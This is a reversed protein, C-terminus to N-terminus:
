KSFNMYTTGELYYFSPQNKTLTFFDIKQQCKRTM